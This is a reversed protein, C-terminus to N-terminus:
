HQLSSLASTIYICLAQLTSLAKFHIECTEAIVVVVQAYLNNMKLREESGKSSSPSVYVFVSLNM